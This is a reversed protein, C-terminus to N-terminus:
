GIFGTQGDTSSCRGFWEGTEATSGAAEGTSMGSHGACKPGSLLDDFCSGHSEARTPESPTQSQKTDPRKNWLARTSEQCSPSPATTHEIGSATNRKEPLSTGVPIDGPNVQKDKGGPVRLVPKKKVWM